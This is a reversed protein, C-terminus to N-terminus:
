GRRSPLIPDEPVAAAQEHLPAIRAFDVPTKTEDLNQPLYEYGQLEVAIGVKHNIPEHEVVRLVKGRCRVPMSEALTIEAPMVLTLEVATGEKVQVDTYLYVGRASLDQTFGPEEHDCGNIRLSVPLQLEFRQRSRREHQRPLDM